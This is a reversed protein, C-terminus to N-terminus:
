GLTFRKVRRKVSLGRRRLNNLLRKVTELVRCGAEVGGDDCM